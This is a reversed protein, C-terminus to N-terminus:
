EKSKEIEIETKLFEGDSREEKRGWFYDYFSPIFTVIRRFKETFYQFYGGIQPDKTIIKSTSLDSLTLESHANWISRFNLNGMTYIKNFSLHQGGALSVIDGCHRIHVVKLHSNCYETSCTKKNFEEAGISCQIGPANYIRCVAVLHPFELAILQAIAGGLSHGMLVIKRGSVKHLNELAVKLIKSNRQFSRSGITHTLDDMVAELKRVTGQIIFMPPAIKKGIETTSVLVLARFGHHDEIIDKIALSSYTFATPQPIVDGIKWDRYVTDHALIQKWAKRNPANLLLDTGSGSIQIAYEESQLIDSKEESTSPKFVIFEQQDTVELGPMKNEVNM